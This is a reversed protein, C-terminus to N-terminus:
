SGMCSSASGIGRVVTEPTVIILVSELGVLSASCSGLLATSAAWAQGDIGRKLVALQHRSVFNEVLLNRSSRFLSPFADFWLLFLNFM